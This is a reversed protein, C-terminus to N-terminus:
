PWTWYTKFVELSLFKVAEKPLSQWHENMRVIPSNRKRNVRCKRHKLKHGNDRTRDSLVVPFLRDRHEVSKGKLISSIREM